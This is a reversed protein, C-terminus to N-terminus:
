EGLPIWFGARLVPRQAGLEVFLIHRGARASWRAFPELFLQFRRNKSARDERFEFLLGPGIRLGVDVDFGRYAVNGITRGIGLLRVAGGLALATRVNGDSRFASLDTVLNLERTFFDQAALVGLELGVGPLGAPGIQVHAGEPAQARAGPALLVFVAFLAGCATRRFLDSAGPYQPPRVRDPGGRGSKREPIM